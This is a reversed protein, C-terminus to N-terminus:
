ITYYSVSAGSANAVLSVGTYVSYFGTSYGTKPLEPRFLVYDTTMYYSGAYSPTVLFPLNNPFLIFCDGLM